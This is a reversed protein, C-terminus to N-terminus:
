HDASGEAPHSQGDSLLVARVHADAKMFLEIFENFKNKFDNEVNAPSIALCYTLTFQAVQLVSLPPQPPPPPLPLPPPVYGPEGPLIKHHDTEHPM